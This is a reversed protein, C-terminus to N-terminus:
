TIVTHLVDIVIALLVKFTILFSYSQLLQFKMWQCVYLFFHNFEGSAFSAFIETVFFVAGSTGDSDLVECSEILLKFAPSEVTLPQRLKQDVERM